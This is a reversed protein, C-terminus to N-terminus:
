RGTTYKNASICAAGEGGKKRWADSLSDNKRRKGRASERDDPQAGTWSTQKM